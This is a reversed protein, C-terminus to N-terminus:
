AAMSEIVNLTHRTEQKIPLFSWMEQFYKWYRVIQM